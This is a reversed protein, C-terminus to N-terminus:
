GFTTQIIVHRSMFELMWVTFGVRIMHMCPRHSGFSSVSVVNLEVSCEHRFCPQEIYLLYEGVMLINIEGFYTAKAQM